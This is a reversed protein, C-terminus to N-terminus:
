TIMNIVYILTRITTIGRYILCLDMECCRSDIFESPFKSNYVRGFQADTRPSLIKINLIEGNKLPYAMPRPTILYIM